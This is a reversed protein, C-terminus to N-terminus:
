RRPTGFVLRADRLHASALPRRGALYGLPGDPALEWRASAARPRAWARVPSVYPSGAVAQIISFTLRAAPSGIPRPTFTARALPRAARQGAGGTGAGPFPTAPTARDATATATFTPGYRFDLAAKEKPIGWLRRGGELSADSDVWIETISGAPRTGHRVAVTALLEHYALQGPPTYDIWATIVFAHGAFTVPTVVEPVRPLAYVPVRWVSLYAEGALRWPEAPYDRSM